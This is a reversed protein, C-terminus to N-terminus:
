QRAWLCVGKWAPHIKDLWPMSFKVPVTEPLPIRIAPFQHIDWFQCADRPLHFTQATLPFLSRRRHHSGPLCYPYIRHFPGGHYGTWTGPGAQCPCFTGNRQVVDSKDHDPPQEDPGRWRCSYFEPFSPTNRPSLDKRHSGQGRCFASCCLSVGPIRM